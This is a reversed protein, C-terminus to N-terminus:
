SLELLFTVPGDNVLSVQMDAGFEGAAVRPHRQWLEALMWDYLPEAEAPPLASSFGPRLGKRTDASLTFQSVLLVGGEVDAVSSNMRGQNDAFMRYALLRQLLRTGLERSDDRDLGLFVLLGPGIEGVCRGQVQVSARAVRQLLARM